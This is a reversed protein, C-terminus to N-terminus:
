YRETRDDHGFEMVISIHKSFDALSQFPCLEPHLRPPSPSSMTYLNTCPLHTTTWAVLVTATRYGRCGPQWKLGCVCVMRSCDPVGHM